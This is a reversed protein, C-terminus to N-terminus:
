YWVSESKQKKSLKHEKVEYKKNWSGINIDVYYNPVSGYDGDYVLERQSSSMIEYIELLMQNLKPSKEEYHDNIYFHNVSEYGNNYEGEEWELDLEPGSMISVSMTSSHVTKISFRFEPFSKKIIIGREKVLESSIYPM